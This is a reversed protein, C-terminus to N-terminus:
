RSCFLYDGSGVRFVARRGEMRLFKVGDAETAPLDSETVTGKNGAPVFVTASTNAPIRVKWEFADTKKRWASVIRGHISRYQGRAFDLGEVLQPRLVFHKFAPSDPDPNIGAIGSYMWADMGGRFPHNKSRGDGRDARDEFEKEGWNEWLTTAGRTFLYGFSPFDRKGLVEMVTDDYGYEALVPYIYRNGIIGVSVYGNSEQVSRNLTEAVAQKDNEPVLRFALALTNKEQVGYTKGHSDYFRENFAARIEGALQDYVAADEPHGIVSAIASMTEACFHFMVTSTFEVPTHLPTIRGPPFLSGIGEALIFNESM